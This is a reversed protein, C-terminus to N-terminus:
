KRRKRTKKTKRTKRKGGKHLQHVNGVLKDTLTRINRALDQSGGQIIKNLEPVNGSYKGLENTVIAPTASAVQVIRDIKKKIDEILAKVAGAEKGATALYEMLLEGIKAGSEVLNSVSTAVNIGSKTILLVDGPGPLLSVTNLLSDTGKKILIQSSKLLTDILPDLAKKLPEDALKAFIQALETLREKLEALLIQGEETGFFGVLSAVKANLIVVSEAISEQTLPKPQQGTIASLMREATFTIASASMKSVFAALSRSIKVIGDLDLGDLKFSKKTNESVKEDAKGTAVAVDKIVKEAEKEEVLNDVRSSGGKYKKKTQNKRKHQNKM